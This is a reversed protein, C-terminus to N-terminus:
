EGKSKIKTPKNQNTGRMVRSGRPKTENGKQRHVEDSKKHQRSLRSCMCNWSCYSRVHEKISVGARRGRPNRFFALSKPFLSAAEIARSGNNPEYM